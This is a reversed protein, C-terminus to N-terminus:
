TKAYGYNVEITDYWLKSFECCIFFAARIQELPSMSKFEDKTM